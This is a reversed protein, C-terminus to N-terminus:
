AAALVLKAPALACFAEVVEPDFQTGACRHLEALAVERTSAKCYPRDTVIADYADCVAIIRAGLPIDDGSLGDPYGSGDFWEHSSRVLGATPALSPAALLIREGILTHRRMFEWEDTDLPSPKHLITDPIATKGIDHLEAALGIWSVELQDRGMQRATDEALGAVGSVHERLEVNRESLVKLLVDGVQRSASTSGSKREYMRQDALTLAASPTTTDGPMTAMGYSCGIDFAGGIESLAEAALGVIRPGERSDHIIVCFEDGGMRYAAGHGVLAAALREGLRALLSDGAPHGFTDNYQKFGDLDFLAVVLDQDGGARTTAIELDEALGRRNPLGTLSDTRADLQHAAAMRANEHALVEAVSRARVSRRYLVGFALVLLLIALATGISARAQSADERREYVDSAVDLGRSLSAMTRGSIELLRTAEVLLGDAGGAYSTKSGLGVIDDLAAYNAHLSRAVGLMPPEAPLKDLIASVRARSLKMLAATHTPSAGIASSGQIPIDQMQVLETKLTALRLQADRGAVARMQLVMISAIVILGLVVVFAPVTRTRNHSLADLLRRRRSRPETNMDMDDVARLAM